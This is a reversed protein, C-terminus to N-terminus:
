YEDDLEEEVDCINNGELLTIPIGHEELLREASFLVDGILESGKQGAEYAGVARVRVVAVAVAQLEVSYNRERKM